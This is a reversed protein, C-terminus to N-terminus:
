GCLEVREFGDDVDCWRERLGGGLSSRSLLIFGACFFRFVSGGVLFEDDSEVFVSMVTCCVLGPESATVLPM